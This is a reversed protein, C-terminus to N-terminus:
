YEEDWRFQYCPNVRNGLPEERPNDNTKDKFKDNHYIVELFSELATQLAGLRTGGNYGQTMSQSLDLVLVIDAPVSENKITVSGTVFSELTITYVGDTNPESVTKSYCIGSGDDEYPKQAYASPVFAILAIAAFILTYIKKM